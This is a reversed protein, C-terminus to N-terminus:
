SGQFEHCLNEVDRRCRGLVAVSVRGRALCGTNYPVIGTGTYPSFLFRSHRQRFEAFTRATTKIALSLFSGIAPLGQRQQAQMLREGIARLYAVGNVRANIEALFFAVEGTHRDRYEGFDFGVLGAYDRAQLWTSLRRAAAVIAPLARSGSPYVNGEHALGCGLLQDTVSVCRVLGRGPEIHMLVNPSALLDLLSEVLYVHNDRRAALARLAHGISAPTDEVLVLSSGSSGYSGRVIVRGTRPLRRRIARELPALDLKGDGGADLVVAEGDAVPVGLGEAWARAHHKHNARDVLEPPGGMVEVPRGLM